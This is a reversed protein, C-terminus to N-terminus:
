TSADPLDDSSLIRFVKIRLGGPTPGSSAGPCASIACRCDMEAYLELFDGRRARPATYFLKGEADLGTTMFLNLPDHLDRASLGFEAVAKALNARCNPLGPRGTLRFYIHEDCMGFLLDHSAEGRAGPRPDVSDRIVTMLPRQKPADSWLRCGVTVHSGHVMRTQTASLHEALDDANFVNLDAVQSHRDCEIRLINGRGVSFSAGARPAVLIEEITRRANEDAALRQYRGREEPSLRLQDFNRPGYPLPTEPREDM